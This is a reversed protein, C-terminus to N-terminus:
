AFMFQLATALTTLCWLGVMLGLGNAPRWGHENIRIDCLNGHYVAFVLVWCIIMLASSLVGFIGSVLRYGAHVFRMTGFVVCMLLTAVAIIGMAAAAHFRQVVALCGNDNTLTYSFQDTTPNYNSQEWLSWHGYSYFGQPSRDFMPLSLAISWAILTLSSSLLFFIGTFSVHLKGEHAAIAATVSAMIGVVLVSSAATLLGFGADLEFGQVTYAYQGQCFQTIYIKYSMSWVATFLTLALTAILISVLRPVKRLMTLVGFITAVFAVVIGFVVLTEAAHFYQQMTGCRIAEATTVTDGAQTALVTRWLSVTTRTTLRRYTFQSLPTGITSFVVALGAAAIFTYDAIRQYQERTPWLPNVVLFFLNVLALCFGVTFAALGVTHVYGQRSMPQTNCLDRYYIDLMIAWTVLSLAAAVASAKICLARGANACILLLSALTASLAAGISILAAGQAANFLTFGEQCMDSAYLNYTSQNAQVNQQYWVYILVEDYPGTQLRHWPMATGLTLFFLMAISVFLVVTPAMRTPVEPERKEPVEPEASGEDKRPESDHESPEHSM